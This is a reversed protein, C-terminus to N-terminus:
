NSKTCLANNARNFSTIELIRTFQGHIDRRVFDCSRLRIGFTGKILMLSFCSNVFGQIFVELTAAQEVQEAQEAKKGGGGGGGGGGLLAM